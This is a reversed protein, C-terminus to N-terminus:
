LEGEGRVGRGRGVGLDDDEEGRHDEATSPQEHDAGDNPPLKAEVM